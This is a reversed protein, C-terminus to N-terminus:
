GRVKGSPLTVLTPRSNTPTTPDYSYTTVRNLPSPSTQTLVRNFGDYTMTTTHNLEDTVSTLLKPGYGFQKTSNDPYTILTVQGFDNYQYSTTHGNADISSGLRYNSNYTITTNQTASQTADRITSLLGSSWTFYEIGGNRCTHTLIKSLSNYTFGESTGDSYSIGTVLNTTPDRTYTTTYGLLDQYSIVYGVSNYSWYRTPGTTETGTTPLTQSLLHGTTTRVFSSVYGNADTTTTTWTGTGSTYSFDQTKNLANTVASLLGGANVSYLFYSGDPFTIEPTQANGNKLSVTCVTTNSSGEVVTQVDGYPVGSGTFYTYKINALGQARADIAQSLAFFGYYASNSQPELATYTYTAGTGGSYAANALVWTLFTTSGATYSYSTYGYNVTRGDSSTVSSVYNADIEGGGVYSTAASGYAISLYRGGPETIKTLLGYAGSTYTLSTTLGKSDIISTLEYFIVSGTNYGTFAFQVNSSNTLVYGSGQPTIVDTVASTSTWVNPSTQTFNNTTGTPYMVQLTPVGSVTGTEFNWDFSHRWTGGSAGSNGFVSPAAQGGFIPTPVARTNYYRTWNLGIESASAVSLDNVVRTANGTYANLSVLPVNPTAFYTAAPCSVGGQNDSGNPATQARVGCGFGGLILAFGVVGFNFNM